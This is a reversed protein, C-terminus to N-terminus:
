PRAPSINRGRKWELVRYVASGIIEHIAAEAKALSSSQPMFYGISASFPTYLSSGPYACPEFGWARFAGLARPMHLASTVLWIRKPVAPSLRSTYMANEWTTRSRDEIEIVDAPVGLRVALGRLLVSDPVGSGGGSIVLHAGPSRRWLAVAAFLRHLSPESLSAFDSSSLPRRDTGGDLLVITTPTPVACSQIPPVRSEVSWVLVNAGVPAMFFLLVIEVVLGAVRGWRPLRRWAWALAVALLLACTLPSLAYDPLRM